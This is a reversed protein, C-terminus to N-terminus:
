AFFVSSGSRLVLAFTVFGCFKGGPLNEPTALLSCNAFNAVGSTFITRRLSVRPYARKHLRQWVACITSRALASLCRLQPKRRMTSAARSKEPIHWPLSDGAEARRASSCSTRPWALSDVTSPNGRCACSSWGARRSGASTTAVALQPSRLRWLRQHVCRAARGIIEAPSERSGCHWDRAFGVPQQFLRHSPM